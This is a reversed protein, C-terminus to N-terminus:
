AAKIGYLTFTSGSNFNVANWPTIEISTIASTSRWLGIIGTIDGTTGGASLVSGYRWLATKYTTTNSYNQIQIINPTFVNATVSDGYVLNNTISSGNTIRGSYASGAYGSIYTESYNSGSDSNFRLKFGSAGSMQNNVQLILDTYTGTISSFTVTNGATTLTTTAIPEYTQAM